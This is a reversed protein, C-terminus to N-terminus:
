FVIHANVARASAVLGAARDAALVGRDALDAVQGAFANVADVATSKRDSSKRDSRVAVRAQTLPVTLTNRLGALIPLSAVETTLSDLQGLVRVANVTITIDRGTAQSGDTATFHIAYPGAQDYGPTWRFRRSAPDFTAGVPLAGVDVAVTDGDPDAAEVVFDLAKGQDVSRDGAVVAPTRNARNFYVHYANTDAVYFPALPLGNTTFNM